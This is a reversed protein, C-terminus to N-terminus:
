YDATSVGVGCGVGQGRSVVVKCSMLTLLWWLGGTPVYWDEKGTMPPSSGCGADVVHLLYSAHCRPWSDAGEEGEFAVGLHLSTM